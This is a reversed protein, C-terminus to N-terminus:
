ADNDRRRRLRPLALGFLLTLEGLPPASGCGCGGGEVCTDSGSTCLGNQCTDGRTCPDHDDCSTGDALNEARCQGTAPDCTGVACPGDFAQCDRATGRCQGAQCRDSLTCLDGDDCPREHDQHICGTGVQCSDDTCANGDDCTNAAGLCAGANCADNVTCVDGDDCTIGDAKPAALCAGSATDCVGTACASDLEACSKPLGGCVGAACSDDITCPDGDDCAATNAAHQCGLADDCADDTCVNGDDCDLIGTGVCVGDLCRDGTSCLKNDDCAATNNAHRCGLGSQCTDDTCVNGDSCDVPLGGQCIGQSCSEGETCPEGDDCAVTNNTHQCGSAPDCGDDTCVNGDSCDRAAGPVCAGAQCQDGVSCANGDDCGLQNNEHRCGDVPDCSDNTCVNDDDCDLVTGALCAQNVCTEVGNCVNGDSCDIDQVCTHCGLDADDTRGDCNNDLSDACVASGLPGEFVSPNIQGNDDDCDTGGCAVPGYGDRDQDLPQGHCSGSACRDSTTCADGDDCSATNPLYQCTGTAPNCSDDTCVDNDNCQIATSVCAGGSCIDTTCNDGDSCANTDDPLYLCGSAPDCSDDTCLNHDDCTLPQGVCLGNSCVDSVTCADGDNCSLTNNLHQCEGSVPNCVDETCFNGDDCSVATGRCVGLNCRDDTTCPDLDDCSATNFAHQCAGSAPVCSDNTCVDGDSCDKPLGASCSLDSGSCHDLTCLDSDLDCSTDPAAPIHECGSAPNCSDVSCMNNDNCSIIQGACTGNQCADNQTCANADDCPATNFLYQCEGTASNCSDDTCVSGDDCDKFAHLCTGTAAECSDTTCLDSDSCDKPAHTCGSSPDCGDVTCPDADDCDVPPHSCTGTSPDCVDSTCPNSDDCDVPSGAQCAGNGDCSEAGDCLDADACSFGAPQPLCAFLFCGLCVDACDTDILCQNGRNAFDVQCDDTDSGTPWRVLVQTGSPAPTFATVGPYVGSGYVAVDLITNSGNLLLVEDGANNLGWDGNSWAAFKTMKSVAPVTSGFEADPYVGFVSFFKDAVQAVLYTGGAPVVAGAPFSYMGESNVPTEEDGLKYASLDIDLSTRNRIVVWEGSSTTNSPAPAFRDILIPSIAEGSADTFASLHYDVVGDSVESWTNPYGSTAPDGYDTVVDIANSVGPGGIDQTNDGVPDVSHFSAITLGMGAPPPGAIGLMTAPVFIEVGEAGRAALAGPLVTWDALYVTAACITNGCSTFRTQVLFEWRAASGVQTDGYGGFDLNGSGAIRDMDIAVQFQANADPPTATRIFIALGAVPGLSGVTIRVVTIDEAAGAGLDTRQDGSADQFVLEGQGNADRVVIGLNSANPLRTSWETSTGDLIVGHASASFPLALLIGVVLAMVRDRRSEM